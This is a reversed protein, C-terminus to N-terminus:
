STLKTVFFYPFQILNLLRLDVNPLIEKGCFVCPDGTDNLPHGPYGGEGGIGYLIPNFTKFEYVTPTSTVVFRDFNTLYMLYNSIDTPMISAVSSYGSNSGEFERIKRITNDVVIDLGEDCSLILTFALSSWPHRMGEFTNQKTTILGSNFVLRGTDSVTNPDPSLSYLTNDFNTTPSVTSGNVMYYKVGGYRRLWYGVLKPTGDLNQNFYSSNVAIKFTYNDRILHVRGGSYYDLDITFQWDAPNILSSSISNPFSLDKKISSSSCGNHIFNNIFGRRSNINVKENSISLGTNYGAGDCIHNVQSTIGNNSGAINLV